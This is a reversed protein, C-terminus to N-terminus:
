IEQELKRVTKRYQRGNIISFVWLLNYVSGSLIGALSVSWRQLVLALFISLIGVGVMIQYRRISFRIDVLERRDLKLFARNKHVHRYLLLIVMFVSVFGLSYIVMLWPLQGFPIIESLSRIQQMYYTQDLFLYGLFSSFYKILWTMLFKLPYVYFLVLFLLALNLLTVKRDRLNYNKFFNVQSQWIWFIFIICIAFPVLDYVFVLLEEFNQPVSSSILILAIALAFVGDSLGEIRTSNDRFPM